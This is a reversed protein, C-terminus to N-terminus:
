SYSPVHSPVSFCFFSDVRYIMDSTIEKQVPILLLTKMEIDM